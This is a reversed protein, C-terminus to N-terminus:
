EVELDRTLQLTRGEPRQLEFSFRWRGPMHLMMGDVVYRGAGVTRLVPRYNMGHRHLPMEADVRLLIPAAAGPPACVAVDVGFPRGVVIPAGQPAFALVTGDAAQIENRAGPPLEDGCHAHAMATVGLAVSGALARWRVPKM